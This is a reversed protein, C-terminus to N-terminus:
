GGPGQQGAPGGGNRFRRMMQGPGTGDGFRFRRRGQGGMGPSNGGPGQQGADPAPGAATLRGLVDNGTDLFLEHFYDRMRNYAPQEQGKRLDGNIEEKMGELRQFASPNTRQLSQLEKLTAHFVSLVSKRGDPSSILQDYTLPRGGVSERLTYGQSSWSKGRVPELTHGTATRKAIAVQEEQETLKTEIFALKKSLAFGTTGAKVAAESEDFLQEFPEVNTGHARLKEIRQCLLIRREQQPGPEVDPMEEPKVDELHIGSLFATPTIKGNGYELLSKKPIVIFKGEPGHQAFLVKVKEIQNPAADVLAKSLFAADIKLDQETASPAADSLVTVDPGAGIVKVGRYKNNSERL